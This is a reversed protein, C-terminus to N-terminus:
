SRIQEFGNIDEKGTIIGFRLKDDERYLTYIKLIHLDEMFYALVHHVPNGFMKKGMLRIMNVAIDEYVPEAFVGDYERKEVYRTICYEDTISFEITM